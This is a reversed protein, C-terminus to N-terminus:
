QKSRKNLEKNANNYEIDLDDLMTVLNNIKNKISEYEMEMSTIRNRIESNSMNSWDIM